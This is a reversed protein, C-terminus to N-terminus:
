NISKVDFGIDDLLGKIREAEETILCFGGYNLVSNLIFYTENFSYGFEKKLIKAFKSIKYGTRANMIILKM